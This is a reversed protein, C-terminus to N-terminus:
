SRALASLRRSGALRAHKLETRSADGLPPLCHGGIAIRIVCDTVALGRAMRAKGLAAGSVGFPTRFAGFVRGRKKELRQALLYDNTLISAAFLDGLALGDDLLQHVLGGGAIM